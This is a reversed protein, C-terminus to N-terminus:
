NNNPTGAAPAGATQEALMPLKRALPFLELAKQIQADRDTLVKQREELGFHYAFIEAKIALRIYDLNDQIDKDTFEIKKRTLFRKFDTITEDSVKFSTKVPPNKHNTTYVV